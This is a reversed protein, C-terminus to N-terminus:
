AYTYWSIQVPTKFWPSETIGRKRETKEITVYFNEFDLPNDIRHVIDTSAEFKDLIENVMANTPGSGQSEPYNLLLQYIGEYRQKYPKGEQNIGLSKVQRVMPMFHSKIYPTGIVPVYKVNDYTIHPANVLQKTRVELAAQIKDYM